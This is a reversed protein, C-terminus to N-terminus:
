RGQSLADRDFSRTQFPETFSSFTVALSAESLGYVPSLSTSPLGWRAFRDVFRQLTRPAVPEAGNMTVKWSLPGGVRFGQGERSGCLPCLCIRPLLSPGRYRSVAQLWLQPRAIFVEPGMLVLDARHELTPLVCGILGM